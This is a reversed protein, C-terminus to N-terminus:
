MRPSNTLMATQRHLRFLHSILNRADTILEMIKTMTKWKISFIRRTNMCLEGLFCRYVKAAKKREFNLRWRKKQQQQVSNDRGNKGSQLHNLLLLHVKSVLNSCSQSKRKDILSLKIRLPRYTIQSCCFLNLAICFCLCRRDAFCEKSVDEKLRDELEQADMQYMMKMARSTSKTKEDDGDRGKAEIRGGKQDTTQKKQVALLAEGFLADQEDKLAKKRAKAEEKAKKRLEEQRRLKPDGGNLVSKETAKVFQQVKKSKNKNKLGFTKDEIIQQKKKQQTKKSDLAGKKAVM